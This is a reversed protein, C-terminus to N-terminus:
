FIPKSENTGPNKQLITYVCSLFHIQHRLEAQNRSWVPGYQAPNLLVTNLDVLQNNSGSQHKCHVQRGGLLQSYQEQPSEIFKNNCSFYNDQENNARLLYFISSSSSSWDTFFRNKIASIFPLSSMTSVYYQYDSLFLLSVILIVESSTVYMLNTM